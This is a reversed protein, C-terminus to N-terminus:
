EVVEGPHWDATPYAGAVPEADVAAVQQGTAGLLRASIKYPEDLGDPARWWLRLRAWVQWHAEHQRLGYGLM